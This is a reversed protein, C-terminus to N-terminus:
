STAPRNALTSLTSVSLDNGSQALELKDTQAGTTMSEPPIIVKEGHATTIAPHHESLEKFVRQQQHIKDLLIQEDTTTQEPQESHNLSIVKGPAIITTGMVALPEPPPMPTAVDGSQKDAARATPKLATQEALIAGPGGAIAMERTQELKKALEEKRRQEAALMMSDFKQATPNNQEDLMDDSAHIDLVPQEAAVSSATVLRDSSEEISALYDPNTNLNVNVNKVVWGRSDLTTALAKLRSQVELQSYGKTLMQDIKKPVTITVLQSLGSQNWIRQRPKLIYKIRALLWVETPQDRGLPSALVVFLAMPLAFVIVIPLKIFVPIGAVLLKFNLFGLIAAIGAYILGKLTLPGLLKDEAEIDQIVKYVAM